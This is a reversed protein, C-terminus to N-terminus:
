RVLAADIKTKTKIVLVNSSYCLAGSSMCSQLFRNGNPSQTFQTFIYRCCGGKLEIM